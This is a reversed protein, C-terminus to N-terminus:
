VRVVRTTCFQVAVQEMNRAIFIAELIQSHGTLLEVTCWSPACLSVFTSGDTSV